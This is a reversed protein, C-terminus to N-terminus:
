DRYVLQVGDVSTKKSFVEAGAKIRVSLKTPTEWHIEEIMDKGGLVLANGGDDPLRETNALVSVQTSFGTTAGCERSFVVARKGSESRLERQIKNECLSCAAVLLSAAFAIGTRLCARCSSDWM